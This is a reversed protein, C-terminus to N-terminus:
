AFSSSREPRRRLTPRRYPSLSVSSRTYEFSCGLSPSTDSTRPIMSRVPTWRCALTRMDSCQSRASSASEPRSISGAIRRSASSSTWKRSTLCRQGHLRQQSFAGDADAGSLGILPALPKRPGVVLVESDAGPKKGAVLAPVEVGYVGEAPRRRGRRRTRPRCAAPGRSSPLPPPPRSSPCEWGRRCPPPAPCLGCTRCGLPAM